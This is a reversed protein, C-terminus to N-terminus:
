SEWPPIGRAVYNRIRAQNRPDGFVELNASLAAGRHQMPLAGNLENAYRKYRAVDSKGLQRLRRVHRQVQAASDRDCVDVLGWKCAQMASCTQTTLTMYHANQWGIRRVLFPLVCAPMLGFLLESLSFTAREDAIAIDCAAVFGVGGANTRGRVHAVSVFAGGALRLWLDYAATPDYGGGQPESCGVVQALDAGMCFVDPTGELVVVRADRECQDLVQTMEVVLREDMGNGAQPRNLQVHCVADESRVLLTEYKV